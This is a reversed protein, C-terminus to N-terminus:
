APATASRVESNSKTLSFSHAVGGPVVDPVINTVQKPVVDPVVDPVINTIQALQQTIPCTRFKTFSQLYYQINLAYIHM